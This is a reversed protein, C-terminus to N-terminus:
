KARAKSTRNLKEMLYVGCKVFGASALAKVSQAKSSRRVVDGVARQVSERLKSSEGLEQLAAARDMTSGSGSTSIGAHALMKQQLHAPLRELTSARAAASTDQQLLVASGAAVAGAGASEASFGARALAGGYLGNFADINPDVINRVKNPNEGFQMRYDGLYSLGAASRFLEQESFEEPLLLRSADLARDLNVQVAAEVEEDAQLTLVPKHLRGALYMHRWDTLDEVLKNVSVVGYKIRQDGEWDILTNYYVGSAWEEQVHGVVGSGMWKLFSYHSPNAAINGRHWDAPSDVAFIYDVMSNNKPKYGAQQLAASGYAAAWRVPPFGPLVNPVRLMGAAM